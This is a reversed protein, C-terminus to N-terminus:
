KKRGRDYMKYERQEYKSCEILATSDYQFPFEFNNIYGNTLLVKIKLLKNALEDVKLWDEPTYTGINQGEFDMSDVLPHCCRTWVVDECPSSHVCKSCSFYDHEIMQVAGVVKSRYM